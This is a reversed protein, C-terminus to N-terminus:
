AGYYFRCRIRLSNQGDFYKFRTATLSIDPQSLYYIYFYAQQARIVTKIQLFVCVGNYFPNDMKIRWLFDFTSSLAFIETIRIKGTRM